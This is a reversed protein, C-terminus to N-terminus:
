RGSVEDLDAQTLHNLRANHRGWLFYVVLGLGIWGAMFGWTMSPLQLITFVCAAISLIPTVPYFPVRFGRELDPEQRRLVIVGVSVIAFATLTGLSTLHALWDLPVIAAILAVALCVVVTNKVPTRTVPNVDSFFRPMLGDRGMAFLVRTQGFITVLTVSFISIIAGAALLTGPWTAGTVDQLIQALGADQGEFGQWNQAGLAALAVLMYFLTVIILAGILARPLTRRPDKVEEGATSVADLGVYTFFIIGTAAFVGSVGMPAFEAFRDTEWGTFAIVIFAVLVALKIIVMIANTRASESAGRILLMMCMLVLLVAPLNILGEVARGNAETVEPSYSLWDPLRWHFVNELFQNVYQSWGVAVAASSVGYELLLCFAVIYAVIEGLTAYAYSYTSGSVPIASALEAYCLATLGAVIGALLFSVVTAPGAVPVAESLIFFIGTGITAGVGIMMLEFTGMTRKLHEQGDGGHGDVNGDRLMLPIPKKRFVGRGLAPTPTEDVAAM